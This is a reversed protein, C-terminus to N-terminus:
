AQGKILNCVNLIVPAERDASREDSSLLVVRLQPLRQRLEQLIPPLPEDPDHEVLLYCPYEDSGGSQHQARQQKLASRVLALRINAKKHRGLPRLVNAILDEVIQDLMQATGMGSDPGVQVARRGLPQEDVLHADLDRKDYRALASEGFLPTVVPLQITEFGDAEVAVTISEQSEAHPLVIDMVQRIPHRQPGHSTFNEARLNEAAKGLVACLLRAGEPGVEALDLMADASAEADQLAAEAYGQEVLATRFAQQLPRAGPESKLVKVIRAKREARESAPPGSPLGVAERFGPLMLLPQIATAELKTGQFGYPMAKIVAALLGEVFVAAGSFGSWHEAPPHVSLEVRRGQVGLVQGVYSSLRLSARQERVKPYGQGQWGQPVSVVVPKFLTTVPPMSCPIAGSELELVAVDAHEDHWPHITAVVRIPSLPRQQPVIVRIPRRADRQWDRGALVHRATLVRLASLLYGTGVHWQQDMGFVQVAVVRRWDRAGLAQGAPSAPPAVSEVDRALEVDELAEGPQSAAPGARREAEAVVSPREVAVAVVGGGAAPPEEQSEPQSEPQADVADPVAADREPRRGTIGWVLRDLGHESIGGRLDVWTRQVLFPPLRPEDGTGPLLVPITPLKRRASENLAVRLEEIAWPGDGHAGCLVAVSRVQLLASEIAAQWPVGPRLEWDDLWVRLGRQVLAQGLELVVPKDQGSHCLFVDFASATTDSAAM